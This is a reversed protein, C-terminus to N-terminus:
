PKPFIYEPLIELDLKPKIDNIISSMKAIETRRVLQRRLDMIEARPKLLTTYQVRHTIDIDELNTADRELM